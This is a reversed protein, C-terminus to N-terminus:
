WRASPHNAGTDNPNGYAEWLQQLIQAPFYNSGTCSSGTNSM